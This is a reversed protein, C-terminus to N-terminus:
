ILQSVKLDHQVITSHDMAKEAAILRTQTAEIVSDKNSQKNESIKLRHVLM